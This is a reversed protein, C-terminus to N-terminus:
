LMDLFRGRGAGCFQPSRVRTEVEIYKSYMETESETSTKVTREARSPYRPNKSM